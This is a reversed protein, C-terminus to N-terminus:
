ILDHGDSSFEPELLTPHPALAGGDPWTGTRLTDGVVQVLRSPALRHLLMGVHSLFKGDPVLGSRSRACLCVASYFLLLPQSSAESSCSFIASSHLVIEEIVKPKDRISAIWQDSLMKGEAYGSRGSIIQLKKFEVQNRLRVGHLLLKAYQLHSAQDLIETM